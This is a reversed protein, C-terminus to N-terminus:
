GSCVGARGILRSLLVIATTLLAIALLTFEAGHFPLALLLGSAGLSALVSGLLLPGCALCGLGLLAALSGGGAFSLARNSRTRLHRWIYVSMSVVMGLLSSTSLVGVVGFWGHSAAAGFLLDRVLLVHAVWDASTTAHFNSLLQYSGALLEMTSVVVAIGIALILYTPRRFVRTLASISM